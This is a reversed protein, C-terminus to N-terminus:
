ALFLSLGFVVQSLPSGTLYYFICGFVFSVSTAITDVHNFVFRLVILLLIWSLIHSVCGLHLCRVSKSLERSGCRTCCKSGPPNRHEKPCLAAGFSRGCHGCYQSESRWLRKCGLCLIM